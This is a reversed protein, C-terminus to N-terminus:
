KESGYESAQSKLRCLCSALRLLQGLLLIFLLSFCVCVVNHVRFCAIPLTEICKMGRCINSSQLSFAKAVDLNSSHTCLRTQALLM